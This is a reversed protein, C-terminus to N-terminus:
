VHARGIQQGVDKPQLQALYQSAWYAGTGHGILVITSAQLSRAHEIAADLRALMREAHTPPPTGQEAQTPTSEDNDTAATQEPLYGASTTQAAAPQTDTADPEPNEETEPKLDSSCVDSSWDSIRM